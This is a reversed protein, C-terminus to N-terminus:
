TAKRGVELGLVTLRAEAPAHRNERVELLVLQVLLEAQILGPIALVVGLEDLLHRASISGNAALGILSLREVLRKGALLGNEALGTLAYAEGVNGVPGAIRQHDDLAPLRDGPGPRVVDGVVALLNRLQAPHKVALGM